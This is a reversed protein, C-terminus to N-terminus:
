FINFILFAKRTLCTYSAELYVSLGSFCPKINEASIHIILVTCETRRSCKRDMLSLVDASCGIYRTGLANVEEEPLCRGVRMRGYTASQM